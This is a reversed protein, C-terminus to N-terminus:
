GDVSGAEQKLLGATAPPGMMASTVSPDGDLRILTCGGGSLSLYVQKHPFGPLTSDLCARSRSLREQSDQQGPEERIQLDRYVRHAPM